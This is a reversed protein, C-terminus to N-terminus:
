RSMRLRGNMTAGNSIIEALNNRYEPIAHGGRNGGHNEHSTVKIKKPEKKKTSKM